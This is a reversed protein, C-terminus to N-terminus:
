SVSTVRYFFMMNLRALDAKIVGLVNKQILIYFTYIDLFSFKDCINLIIKAAESQQEIQGGSKDLIPNLYTNFDGGLIM